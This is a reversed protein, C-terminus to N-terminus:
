VQVSGLLDTYLRELDKINRNINFISDVRDFARSGMRQILEPSGILSKVKEAFMEADGFPVLFGTEDPVVAENVGEVDFAVIPKSKAMAELVTISFAEGGSSFVFLDMIDLLEYVDSRQGLLRVYGSLGSTEILSEVHARQPGDGVILLIFRIGEAKLLSVAKILLPYQKEPVLRGVTGLVPMGPQIGLSLRKQAKDCSIGAISQVDVGNYILTIKEPPVRERVQLSNEMGKSIAIFHDIYPTLLRNFFVVRSKRRVPSGITTGHDTHIVLTHRPLVSCFKALPNQGHINVVDIRRRRIISALRRAKWLDFGNAMDIKVVEYGDAAMEDSVPGSEFLICVIIDFRKRDHRRCLSLVFKEAGGVTGLPLVYLIKIKDGM